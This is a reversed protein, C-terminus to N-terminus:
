ILDRFIELLYDRGFVSIWTWSVMMQELGHPVSWASSSHSIEDIRVTLCTRRRSRKERARRDDIGCGEVDM